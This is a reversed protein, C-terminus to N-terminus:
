QIGPCPTVMWVKCGFFDSNETRLLPSWIQALTELLFDSLLSTCENFSNAESHSQLDSGM